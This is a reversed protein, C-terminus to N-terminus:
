ARLHAGTERGQKNNKEKKPPHSRLYTTPNKNEKHEPIWSFNALSVRPNWNRPRVGSAWYPALGPKPPPPASQNLDWRLQQRAYRQGKHTKWDTQQLLKYDNRVRGSFQESINDRQRPVIIDQKVTPEGEGGIHTAAAAILQM